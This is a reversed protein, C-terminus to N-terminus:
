SRHMRVHDIVFAFVTVCKLTKTKRKVRAVFRSSIWIIYDCRCEYSENEHVVFNAKHRKLKQQSHRCTQPKQIANSLSQFIKQFIRAHTLPQPCYWNASQQNAGNSVHTSLEIEIKPSKIQAFSSFNETEFQNFKPFASLRSICPLLQLFIARTYNNSETEINSRIESFNKKWSGRSILKLEKFDMM